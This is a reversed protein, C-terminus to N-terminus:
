PQHISRQPQYINAVPDNGQQCIAREANPANRILLRLEKVNALQDAVAEGASLSLYGVAFKAAESSALIRRTHNVLKEHRNDIIDHLM